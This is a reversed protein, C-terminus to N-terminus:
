YLATSAFYCSSNPSLVRISRTPCPVTRTQALVALDSAM